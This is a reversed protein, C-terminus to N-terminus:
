EKPLLGDEGYLDYRDRIYPLLHKQLQKHMPTSLGGVYKLRDRERYLLPYAVGGRNQYTANQRYLMFRNTSKSPSSYVGCGNESFHDDTSSYDVVDPGFANKNGMGTETFKGPRSRYPSTMWMQDNPSKSFRSGLSGSSMSESDTYPSFGCSLESSNDYQLNISAKKPTNSEVSNTKTSGVGKRNFERINPCPVTEPMSSFAIITQDINKRDLCDINVQIDIPNEKPSFLIQMSCFSCFTYIGVNEQFKVAYLSLLHEVTILEFLECPISIRPFRIKSPFDVGKLTRPAQIRFRIRNCHCSGNHHVMNSAFFREKHLEDADDKGYNNLFKRLKNYICFAAIGVAATAMLGIIRDFSKTSM